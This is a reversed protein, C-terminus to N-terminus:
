HGPVPHATAGPPIMHKRNNKPSMKQNSTEMEQSAAIHRRLRYEEAEKMLQERKSQAAIGADDYFREQMHIRRLKMVMNGMVLIESLADM